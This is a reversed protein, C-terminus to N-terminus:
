GTLLREAVGHRKAQIALNYQLTEVIENESWPRSHKLELHTAGELSAQFSFFRNGGSGVHGNNPLWRKEIFTLHDNENFSWIYGTTPNEELGFSIVDGPRPQIWEGHDAKSLHWVDNWSNELGTSGLREKIAKPTINLLRQKLIEPIFGLSFLQNVTASYSTGLRLSLTYVQEATVDGVRMDLKDMVASVLTRPMLFVAAFTEAIRESDSRKYSSLNFMEEQTDTSMGDNRLYHCYEHAASYRQKTLPLKENILIGPPIGEGQPPIYAGALNGLPQFNLVVNDSEIISFIDIPKADKWTKHTGLRAHTQHAEFTATKKVEPWQMTM